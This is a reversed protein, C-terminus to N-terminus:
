KLQQPEIIEVFGHIRRSLRADVSLMPCSLHRALAVYEADYTKAWGIETALRWAEATLNDPRRSEIPAERLRDRALEALEWSITKRWAMEHLASPAESWLLPPAVLQRARLLKFGGGSVAAQVAASADIALM